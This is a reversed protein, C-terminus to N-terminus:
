LGLDNLMRALVTEARFYEEAIDRAARGHREPDSEVCEFAAVAEDATNFAFLGEGTPLVTGFGTDQTIVPRGAALYSASRESFWGSKLRVNLDRAVTFEGSSAKIYDRYSWPDTSLAVGDVLDWKNKVLLVDAGDALGGAHVGDKVGPGIKEPPMLNTALEMPTRVRTPVDIIKLFEHHKSWLYTEGEFEVDRGSQRWNGVTTFHPRTAAGAKWLDILVPQRMRGRLNPLPPITCGPRGINEGYTLTDDHEDIIERMSVDGEAYSLEPHVPDTGVYVLRGARLGQGAVASSGTINLVADAHLLLDEAMQAAPGFWAKDSYGRRYAWRDGIGFQEATRQLYPLAYDSDNVHTQRLPDYPWNSNTEIYHVDHGLRQLGIVFQMHMWAMGAFPDTSITGLVVLRKKTHTKM